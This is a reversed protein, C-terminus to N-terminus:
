YYREYYYNYRSSKMCKEAVNELRRIHSGLNLFRGLM